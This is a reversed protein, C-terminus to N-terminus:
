GHDHDHEKTDHEHDEEDHNDHAHEDHRHNSEYVDHEHDIEYEGDHHEHAHDDHGHGHDHSHGFVSQVGFMLVVGLVFAGLYTAYSHNKRASRVSHPILDHLVVMVFAGASLGFLPVQLMEFQQFLLASGIAGILITSSVAFNVALARKTSYGARKLVFFESTEQVFEHIFISVTTAIGLETSLAFSSALLIGDGINHLADALLIRRADFHSHDHDDVSEDHHHHFLPVFRFLAFLLFAGVVMWLLASATTPALHLTEEFLHYAIILFVGASFSVLYSLRKTIRSGLGKWLFFVGSLSALMIILSAFIIYFLPM